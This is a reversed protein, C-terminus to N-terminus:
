PCWGHLQEEKDPMQIEVASQLLLLLSFIARSVKQKSQGEGGVSCRRSVWRIICIAKNLLLSILATTAYLSHATNKSSSPKLSFYIYGTKGSVKKWKKLKKKQISIGWNCYWKTFFYIPYNHQMSRIKSCCSYRKYLRLQNQCHTKKVFVLIYLYICLFCYLIQCTVSTIDTNIKFLPGLAFSFYWINSWQQTKLKCKQRTISQGGVSCVLSPQLFRGDILTDKRECGM